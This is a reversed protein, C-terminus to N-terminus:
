ERAYNAPPLPSNSPHLAIDINELHLDENYNIMSTMKKYIPMDEYVKLGRVRQREELGDFDFAGRDTYIHKETYQKVIMKMANDLDAKKKELPTM